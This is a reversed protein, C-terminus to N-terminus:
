SINGFMLCLIRMKYNIMSNNIRNGRIQYIIIFYVTKEIANNNLLISNQSGGNM